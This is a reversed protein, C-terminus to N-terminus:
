LRVSADSRPDVTTELLLKGGMRTIRNLRTLLELHHVSHYLVGLFLVLDFPELGLLEDASRLDGYVFRHRTSLEGLWEEHRPRDSDFDCFVLESPELTRDLWRSHIGYKPGVEFVRLGREFGALVDELGETTVTVDRGDLLTTPRDDRIARRDERLTT